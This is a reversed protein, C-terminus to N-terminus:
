PAKKEGQSLGDLQQLVFLSTEVAAIYFDRDIKDVTDEVTHYDKHNSVGIFLYPIGKKAFEYHDSAKHWFVPQATRLQQNRTVRHRSRLCLGAEEISAKVLPKFQPYRRSGTVFLRKRQGGQSLMDLNLNAVIDSLPVPPAQLFAEAGHLGKEEADTAVLLISHRPAGSRLTDALALMGAVGSANDDAGNFVKGGRKGLHDFHATIAIFRDPYIRGPIFGIVNAVPGKFRARQLSFYQQYDPHSAFSSVQMEAFRRRIFQRAKEGGASGAERGEM